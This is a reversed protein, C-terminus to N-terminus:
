LVQVEHLAVGGSAGHSGHPSLKLQLDPPLAVAAVGDPGRRSLEGTVMGALQVATKAGIKSLM